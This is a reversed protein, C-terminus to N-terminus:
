SPRPMEVLAPAARHPDLTAIEPRAVSPAPGPLHFAYIKDSGVHLVGNAVAPSSDFQFYNTDNWDLAGSAADLAYVRRGNSVSTSSATRSRLRRNSTTM